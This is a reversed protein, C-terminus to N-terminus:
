DIINSRNYNFSTLDINMNFKYNLAINCYNIYLDEYEIVFDVRDNILLFCSIM